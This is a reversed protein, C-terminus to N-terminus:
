ASPVILMCFESRKAVDGINQYLTRGYHKGKPRQSRMGLKTPWRVNLAERQATVRSVYEAIVTSNTPNDRSRSTQGRSLPREKPPELSVLM